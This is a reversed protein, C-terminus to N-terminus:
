GGDRKGEVRLRLGVIEDKMDDIAALIAALTPDCHLAAAISELDTM